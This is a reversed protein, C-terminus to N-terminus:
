ISSKRENTLKDIAPIARKLNEWEHMTLSIGKKRAKMEGEKNEYERIKILTLGRYEDVSVFRKKSLEHLVEGSNLTTTNPQLTEPSTGGNASDNTSAFGQQGGVTVYLNNDYYM